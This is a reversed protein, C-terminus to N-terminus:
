LTLVSQLNTHNIQLRLSAQHPKCFSPSLGSTTGERAGESPAQSQQGRSKLSGSGLCYIETTKLWGIQPTTGPFQSDAM